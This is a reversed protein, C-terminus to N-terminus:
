VKVILLYQSNEKYTKLYSVPSKEFFREIFEKLIYNFRKDWYRSITLTYIDENQYNIDKLITCLVSNEYILTGSKTIEKLYTKKIM